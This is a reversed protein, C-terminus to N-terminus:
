RGHNSHSSGPRRDLKRRWQKRRKSLAQPWALWDYAGQVKAQFFRRDDAGNVPLRRLALPDAGARVRGIDTTVCACYGARALLNGFRGAFARDGSPFAYPYAFVPEVVGLREAMDRGSEVVEREVEASPLDVLVPHTVTHSGFEFGEGALQTVQGWSLLPKGRFVGTDDRILGTPLFMTATFGAARLCPVAHQLFDLYGDDFTLIIGREPLSSGARLLRACASLHLTRYGASKLWRVHEAFLAPPVNLRYYAAVGPETDDSVSHYMLIPVRADERRRLFRCLPGAVAVTLFRDWRV